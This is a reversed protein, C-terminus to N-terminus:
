FSPWPDLWFTLVILRLLLEHRQDLELPLRFLRVLQWLFHLVKAVQVISLQFLCVGRGATWHLPAAKPSGAVRALMIPPSVVFQPQTLLWSAYHQPQFSATPLTQQRIFAIQPQFLLESVSPGPQQLADFHQHPTSFASHPQFSQQFSTVFVQM